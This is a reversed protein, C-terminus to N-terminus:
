DSFSAGHDSVVVISAEYAGRLATIDGSLPDTEIDNLARNIRARDRAPM